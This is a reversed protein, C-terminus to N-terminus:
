VDKRCEKLRDAHKQYGFHKEVYELAINVQNEYMEDDAMLQDVISLVEDTEAYIAAEKFVPEFVPPLIVPVGVAMAEFIVRGFAEKLEPHTYYAFVDIEKLFEKPHM